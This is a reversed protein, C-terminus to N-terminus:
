NLAEVEDYRLEIAPTPGTYSFGLESLTLTMSGDAVTYISKGFDSTAFTAWEGSGGDVAAGLKQRIWREIKGM